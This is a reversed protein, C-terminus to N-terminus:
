PALVVKGTTKRGELARHADAARSLPFRAGVQLEVVGSTLWSFLETARGQLASSSRIHDALATRTFYLSGAQMLRATEVSTVPGSAAGYLVMTGRPRLLDLGGDFTSAGVGDYVVDIAKPGAVAEIAARFDTDRYDVVHDAGAARAVEVKEPGGATAFVEAGLHKAIQILLRGVGGAGAHILCRDGEKLPFSDKTLYHATLGQLLSAAAQECTLQDPIKVARGAPVVALEGYSGHVDCWGVRDGVHFSTEGLAAVVTGAGEVGPVYPLPVPFAGTRRYIDIYNLGAAEVRVLLDGARAEPEDLRVWELVEPGGPTKMQIAHM